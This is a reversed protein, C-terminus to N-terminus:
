TNENPLNEARTGLHHSQSIPTPAHLRWGKDQSGQHGTDDDEAEVVPNGAGSAHFELYKTEKSHISLVLHKFCGLVKPESLM